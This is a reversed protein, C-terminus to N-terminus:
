QCPNTCPLDMKASSCSTWSKWLVRVSQAICNEEKTINPCVMWCETIEASPGTFADIVCWDVTLIHHVLANGENRRWPQHTTDLIVSMAMPDDNLV